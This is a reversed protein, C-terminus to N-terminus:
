PSCGKVQAEIRGMVGRRANLEAIFFANKHWRTVTERRVGITESVEKDTKGLILLDVANLQEPTLKPADSREQM